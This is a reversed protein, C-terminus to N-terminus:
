LSSTIGVVPPWLLFLLYGLGLVLLPVSMRSSAKEADTETEATAASRMAAARASLSARVRAGETGALAMAAALETLEPV